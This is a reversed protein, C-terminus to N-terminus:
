MQGFDGGKKMVKGEWGAESRENVENLLTQSVYDYEYM